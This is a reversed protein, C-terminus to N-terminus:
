YSEIREVNMFLVGQKVSFDFKKLKDLQDSSTYLYSNLEGYYSNIINNDASELFFQNLPDKIIGVIKANVDYFNFYTNIIEDKATYDSKEQLTTALGDLILLELYEDNYKPLSGFALTFNSISNLARIGKMSFNDKTLTNLSIYMGYEYLRNDDNLQPNDQILVFDNLSLLDHKVEHVPPNIYNFQYLIISIFIVSLFLSSFAFKYTLNFLLRSVIYFTNKKLYDNSKLSFLESKKLFDSRLLRGNKLELVKTLNLKKTINEHNSLIILKEKSLYNLFDIIDIKINEDLGSLPEDFLIIQKSTLSSRLISVKKRKWM